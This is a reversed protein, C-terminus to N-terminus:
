PLQGVKNFFFEVMKHYDRYTGSGFLKEVEKYRDGDVYWIKVFDRVTKKSKSWRSLTWYFSAFRIGQNREIGRETTKFAADLGNEFFTSIVINSHDAYKRFFDEVKMDLFRIDLAHPNKFVSVSGTGLNIDVTLIAGVVVQQQSVWEQISRCLDNTDV